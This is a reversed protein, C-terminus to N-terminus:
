HLGVTRELTWALEGQAADPVRRVEDVRDLLAEDLDEPRNTALVLMFDNSQGGTHYLVTNLVNQAVESMSTKRRDALAAEAEDIFLLLGRPSSKAWALLLHLESVAAHGLPGLDGGSMIAYDLGSLTAIRRAVMTKGTGPPGYLLVHRLPASRSHARAIGLALGAVSSRLPPAFIIGDLVAAEVGVNPLKGTLLWRLREGAAGLAAGAFSAVARLGSARSTERVLAPRSLRRALVVRLLTAGERALFAGALLFVLSGLVKALQVRNSLLAAAGQGLSIFALSVAVRVRVLAEEGEARIARLRVDENLRELHAEEEVAYVAAELTTAVQARLRAREVVGQAALLEIELRRRHAEVADTTNRDLEFGDSAARRLVLDREEARLTESAHRYESVLAASAQGHDLTHRRAVGVRAAAETRALSALASKEVVLRDGRRQAATRWKDVAAAAAKGGGVGPPVYGTARLAAPVRASILRMRSTLARAAAETADLASALFQSAALTHMFLTAEEVVQSAFGLLCLTYRKTLVPAHVTSLLRRL